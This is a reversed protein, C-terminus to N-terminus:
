TGEFVVVGDAGLCELKSAVDDNDMGGEVSVVGMISSTLNDSTTNNSEMEHLAIM